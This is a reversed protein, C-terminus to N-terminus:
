SFIITSVHKYNNHFVKESLGSKEAKEIAKFEALLLNLSYNKKEEEPIINYYHM